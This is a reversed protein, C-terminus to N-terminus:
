SSLFSFRILLTYRQFIIMKGREMLLSMNANIVEDDLWNLGGLTMIQKRKLNLGTSIL